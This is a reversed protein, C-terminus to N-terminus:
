PEIQLAAVMADAEAVQAEPAAADRNAITIGLLEGDVDVIYVIATADRLLGAGTWVEVDAPCPSGEFSIEFRTAPYGSITLETPETTTHDENETLWEVLVAASPPSGAAHGCSGFVLDVSSATILVPRGYLCDESVEFGDRFGRWTFAATAPVTLTLSLGGIEHGYTGGAPIDLCTASDLTPEPAATGLPAEPASTDPPETATPPEPTPESAPGGTEPARTAPAQTAVLRGGLARTWVLKDQDILIDSAAVYDYRGGVRVTVLGCGGGDPYWALLRNDSIEGNGRATFRKVEDNVCADGTAYGDEFYVPPTTGPGVVLIMASGDGPDTATWTGEFVTTPGAPSGALLAGAAMALALAAVVLGARVAAAPLPGIRGPNWTLRAVLPLRQRTTDVADVVAALQGEAPREDAVDLLHQRIQAAFKDNM